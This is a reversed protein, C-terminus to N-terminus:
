GLHEEAWHLTKELVQATVPFVYQQGKHAVKGIQKLLVFQPERQLAKKDLGLLEQLRKSNKFASTRLPLGYARLVREIQVVLEPDLVGMSAALHAEVIMGIAVAEGHSIKYDEMIELAHGITHGFNLIQRIGLDQEDQEIIKKKIKCSEYIMQALFAPAKLAQPDLLAQFIKAEKILGHKLMEVVGNRWEREPLTDLVALDMFVAKPQYFTGVLNKGFPTDVGTKGGISADVMALLTTPVYVVKVGRCYTAAVFGVLDTVVGGGLAILCTDRGYGKQFLLDELYAKTERTKHAEGAPFALLEVQVGAQQLITKVEHGLSNLLNSDTILVFNGKLAKCFDVLPKALVERGIYIPYKDLFKIELTKYM